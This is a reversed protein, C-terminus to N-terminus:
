AARALSARTSASAYGGLSSGIQRRGSSSTSAYALAHPGTFGRVEASPACSRWASGRSAGTVLATKGTLQLDM